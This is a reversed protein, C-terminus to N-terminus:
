HSLSNPRNTYGTGSISLVKASSFIFACLAKLSSYRDYSHGMSVASYASVNFIDNQLYLTSRVEERARVATDEVFTCDPYSRNVSLEIVHLGCDQLM